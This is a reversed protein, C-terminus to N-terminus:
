RISRSGGTQAEVLGRADAADPVLQDPALERGAGGALLEIRNRTTRDPMRLPQYGQGPGHERDTNRQNQLGAPGVHGRGCDPCDDHEPEDLQRRPVLHHLRQQRGKGGSATRSGPASTTLPM